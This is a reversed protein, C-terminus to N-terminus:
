RGNRWEELIALDLDLDIQGLLSRLRRRREQRVAAQLAANVAAKASRVHYVQMAERLLDRDLDITTRMTHM